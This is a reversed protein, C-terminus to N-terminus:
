DNHRAEPGEASVSSDAQAAGGEGVPSVILVPRAADGPQASNANRTRPILLLEEAGFVATAGCVECVYFRADPECNDADAGCAVCFGPNDLSSDRRSVADIIRDSTISRHINTMRTVIAQQAPRAARPGPPRALAGPQRRLPLRASSGLGAGVRYVPARPRGDRAQKELLAGARRARAVDSDRRGAPQRDQPLRVDQPHLSFARLGQHQDM